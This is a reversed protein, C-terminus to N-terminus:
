EADPAELTYTEEFIERAIPYVEGRVGRLIIDDPQIPTVGERTCVEAEGPFQERYEVRLPCKWCPKWNNPM